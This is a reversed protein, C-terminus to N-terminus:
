LWRLRTTPVRCSPLSPRPTRPPQGVKHNFYLPFCEALTTEYNPATFERAVLRGRNVRHGVLWTGVMMDENTYVQRRALALIRPSAM